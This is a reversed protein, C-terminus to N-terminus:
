RHDIKVIRSILMGDRKDVRIRALREFRLRAYIVTRPRGGWRGRRIVLDFAVARVMHLEGAPILRKVIDGVVEGHVRQILFFGVVHPAAIRIVAVVVAAGAFAATVYLGATVDPRPGYVVIGGAARRAFFMLFALVAVRYLILVGHDLRGALVDPLPDDIGIRGAARCAFLMLFALVAVRHLTLIGHDLRGAFVDPFPNDVGIGGAARRAFLM